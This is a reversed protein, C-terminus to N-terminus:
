QDLRTDFIFGREFLTLPINVWKRLTMVRGSQQPYKLEIEVAYPKQNEDLYDKKLLLGEEFILYAFTLSVLPQIVATKRGKKGNVAESYNSQQRVLAGYTQDFSYHVMGMQKVYDIRGDSIARDMQTTVITPFSISKQTGEFTFLSYPFSNRLEQSFKDLFIAMDEERSYYASYEWVRMGNSVAQFVALSIMSIMTVVILMEALTFARRRCVNQRLFRM